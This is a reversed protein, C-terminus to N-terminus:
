RGEDSFRRVTRHCDCLADDKQGPLTARAFQSRGLRKGNRIAPVEEPGIDLGHGGTFGVHLLRPRMRRKVDVSAELDALTGLDERADNDFSVHDDAIVAFDARVAIDSPRGGDTVLTVDALGDLDLIRNEQGSGVDPM